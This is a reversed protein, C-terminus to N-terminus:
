GNVNLMVSQLSNTRRGSTIRTDNDDDCSHTDDDDDVAIGLMDTTAMMTAM